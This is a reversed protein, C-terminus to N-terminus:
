ATHRNKGLVILKLIEVLMLTVALCVVLAINGASGAIAARKELYFAYSDQWAIPRGQNRQAELISEREYILTDGNFVFCSQDSIKGWVVSDKQYLKVVGHIITSDGNMISANEPLDIMELRSQGILPVYFVDGLGSDVKYKQSIFVSAALLCFYFTYCAIFPTFFAFLYLRGKRPTHIFYVLVLGALAIVLSLVFVLVLQILLAAIGFIM